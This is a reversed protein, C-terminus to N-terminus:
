VLKARVNVELQERCIEIRGGNYTILVDGLYDGTASFDGTVPTYTIVGTSASTVTCSQHGANVIDGDLSLILDVTSGSGIDVVNGNRQITIEIDPATNGQVIEIQPAHVM